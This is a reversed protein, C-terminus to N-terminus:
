MGGPPGAGIMQQPVMGPQPAAGGAAEAADAEAQATQKAQEDIISKREMIERVLARDGKAIMRLMIDGYPSDLGGQGIFGNVNQGLLNDKETRDPDAEVLMTLDDPLDGPAIPKPTYTGNAQLAHYNAEEPDFQRKMQYTQSALQSSWNNYEVLHLGVRTQGLKGMIEVERGSSPDSPGLGQMVPTVGSVENMDAKLAGDIIQHMQPNYGDPVVYRARGMFAFPVPVVDGPRNGLHRYAQVEAPVELPGNGALRMFDIGQAINKNLSEQVTRLMAVEGYGWPRRPVYYNVYEQFPFVERIKVKNPGDYLLADETLCILRGYPYKNRREKMQDIVPPLMTRSVQTGQCDPCSPIESGMEFAGDDEEFTRGCTSCQYGPMPEKILVDKLEEIVEVDKIYIFAVDAKRECLAGDRVVLEGTGSGFILEEASRSYQVEGMKGVQKEKPKVLQWTDPFFKRVDSMDLEPQYIVFRGDHLRDKSPDKYLRQPDVLELNLDYRQTVENMTPYLHSIGTGCILGDTMVGQGTQRWKLLQLAHRTVTAADERQELTVDDRLPEARVQPEASLVFALKQHIVAWIYNRVSQNKWKSRYLARYNAPLAWHNEGLAFKQDEQFSSTYVRSRARASDLLAKGIKYASLETTSQTDVQPDDAM